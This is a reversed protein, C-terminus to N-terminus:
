LAARAVRGRTIAGQHASRRPVLVPVAAGALTEAPARRSARASLKISKGLM